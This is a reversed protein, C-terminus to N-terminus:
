REEGTAVPREPDACWESWSGAYLRPLPLGAHVAALLNHCATVGSGCYIVAEGPATEGYKELLRERIEAAPLFCGDKDLNNKWFYNCAGPIHGAVPDMPEIEGRYRAPERSDILCSAGLVDSSGILRDRRIVGQFHAPPNTNEIAQIEYGAELWRQWGGDLVAVSRHGMFRLMWWLRAAIAGAATDYAVVQSVSSIGLRCFLQKMAEPSPLPHRGAGERNMDSLDHELDAYVATPVHGKQYDRHGADKALLDFRCDVIICDPQGMCSNLQDVSILTEFMLFRQNMCINRNYLSMCGFDIVVPPLNQSCLLFQM